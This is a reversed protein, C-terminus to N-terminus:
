WAQGGTQRAWAAVLHEQALKTAAYTSRPQLPADEPVLGPSLEAGCHPCPPEFRGATVDEARRPGPRVVGHRACTYRGEGYVVMSSAVVLRSVGAAYMAALLVATGHDNHAAYLPADFPNAGDGVMAAQHCVAHVGRLVQALLAADRVDG